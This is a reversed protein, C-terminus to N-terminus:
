MWRWGKKVIRMGGFKCQERRERMDLNAKTEGHRQERRWMAGIDDLDTGVLLHDDIQTPLRRFFSERSRGKTIVVVGVIEQLNKRSRMGVSHANMGQGHCGVVVLKNENPFLTESHKRDREVNVRDGIVRHECTCGIINAKGDRNLDRKGMGGCTPNRTDGNLIGLTKSKGNM